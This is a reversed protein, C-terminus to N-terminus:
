APGATGLDVLVSRRVEKVVVVVVVVVVVTTSVCVSVCECRPVEGGQGERDVWEVLLVGQPGLPALRRVLPLPECQLAVVCVVTLLTSAHRQLSRSDV